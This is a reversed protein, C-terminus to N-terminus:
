AKRGAFSKWITKLRNFFIRKENSNFFILFFFTGNVLFICLGTVLFNAWGDVKFKWPVYHYVLIILAGAIGPLLFSSLLTKRHLNFNKVLLNPYVWLPVVMYSLFTGALPGIGGLLKTFLISAPLNILAQSWMMNTIQAPKGLVTFILAWFSFLSFFFANASALYTLANSDMLYKEGLWLALFSQNLICIPVILVVAAVSLVKTMEMLRLEFLEQNKNSEYYLNGLSAWSAQGLSLLQSQIVQIVRQGVFVKAVMVPGVMMALVINDCHMSLRNAVENMIQPKRQQSIIKSYKNPDKRNLTLKVGSVKWIVFSGAAGSILLAMGQSKMKWGLWAFLVSVLLFIINQFFIILNVKHGKNNAELYARYNITPIFISTALMLTFTWYLDTSDAHPWSTLKKLFPMLALGLLLTWLAIKVYHYFGESLLEQLEKTEGKNCLPILCSILGAYLGMELLGLHGHIEMLVKFTGFDSAGLLDLLLPTLVFTLCLVGVNKFISTLFNLFSKKTLESM